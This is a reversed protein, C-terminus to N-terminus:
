VGLGSTTFPGHTYLSSLEHISMLLASRACSCAKSEWAAQMTGDSRCQCGTSSYAIWRLVLTVPRMHIVVHAHLQIKPESFMCLLMYMTLM